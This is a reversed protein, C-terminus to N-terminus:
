NGIRLENLAELLLEIEEATNYHVLGIRLMGGDSEVGLRETLNIAYYNGDWCFIGRRGLADALERPSRGALRVAVTPTRMDFRAPDSIGYFTLGPIALLGAILQESLGREYAKIAEMAQVLAARRTTAPKIRQGLEALYEIAATVGALGEHNKTGTEWRDPVDDSAPRVKYPRLHALHERKGYLVGMHPAFFKYPSCALFDCDLAQVDIPGHPAYHVADIYVLAGVAHAMQTITTVDNITGVANSAYGVAVLKTRPGIARAMDAMDLTCEETDIDVMRIIAGQEELAKWPAVNADHDLRTLVIEDGPRIDRGFARSIAFTLTTMNPGFIVEDAACGLFDAMAARAADITEDTRRSTAFAGHTNANHHILYDAVADIVRQPVQTGGPGDFFVAPHGNVEQALAPFQARIWTLDFAHM